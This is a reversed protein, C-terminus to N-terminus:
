GSNRSVQNFQWWRTFELRDYTKRMEVNFPQFPAAQRITALAASDLERHGSTELVRVEQLSGDALISVLILVEGELSGAPYNIQGIRECKRRWANLYAAEAASKTSMSNIRKTRPMNALAQQEQAIRAELSAIEQMLKERDYKATQPVELLDALEELDTNAVEDSSANTTLLETTQQNAEPIPAPQALVSQFENNHFDAEETTTMELIESETGSGLQNNAAIFDADEPAELDAALSLTVDISVADQMNVESSFGIGLILLTHLSLAFFLAFSLRDKPTTLVANM